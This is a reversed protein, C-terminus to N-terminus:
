LHTCHSYRSAPIPQRPCSATGRRRPGRRGRACLAPGGAGLPGAGHAPLPVLCPVKGACSWSPLVALPCGSSLWPGRVAREQLQQWAAPPRSYQVRVTGTGYAHTHHDPPHAPPLPPVDTRTRQGRWAPQARCLDAPPGALAPCTFPVTGYLVTGYPQPAPCPKTGAPGLLDWAKKECIPYLVRVTHTSTSYSCQVYRSGLAFM